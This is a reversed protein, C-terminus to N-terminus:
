VTNVAQPIICRRHQRSAVLIRTALLCKWWGDCRATVSPVLKDTLNKLSTPFQRFAVILKTVDKRRDTQGFPVNRSGIKVFHTRTNKLFRNLFNLNWWFGFIIVSLNCSSQHINIIIDPQIIRLILFKEPLNAYFNLVCKTHLLKARFITGNTLYHPFINYFWVINYASHAKCVPYRLSIFRV